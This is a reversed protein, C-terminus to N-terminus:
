YPSLDAKMYSVRISFDKILKGSAREKPMALRRPACYQRLSARSSRASRLLRRSCKSLKTKVTTASSALLIKPRSSASAFILLDAACSQSEFVSEISLTNM